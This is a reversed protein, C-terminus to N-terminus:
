SHGYVSKLKQKIDRLVPSTEDQMIRRECPNNWSMYPLGIVVVQSIGWSANDMVYYQTSGNQWKAGEHQKGRGLYNIIQRFPSLEGANGNCVIVRPRIVALLRAHYEWCDPQVAKPADKTAQMLLNLEKENETRYFCVNSKM